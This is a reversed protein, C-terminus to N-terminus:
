RESVNEREFELARQVFAARSKSALPLMSFFVCDEYTKFYQGYLQHMKKTHAEFEEISQPPLEANVVAESVKEDEADSM